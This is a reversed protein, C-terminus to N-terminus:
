SAPRGRAAGRRGRSAPPRPGRGSRPRVQADVVQLVALAILDLRQQDLMGLRLLGFRVGGQGFHVLLDVLQVALRAALQSGRGHAPAVAHEARQRGPQPLAQVAVQRGLVQASHIAFLEFPAQFDGDFVAVAGLHAPQFAIQHQMNEIRGPFVVQQRHVVQAGAHAQAAVGLDIGLDLVLALAHPRELQHPRANGLTDGIQDEAHLLHIGRARRRPDFLAAMWSSAGEAESIAPCCCAAMSAVWVSRLSSGIRLRCSRTPRLSGQGQPLPLFNLFQQM